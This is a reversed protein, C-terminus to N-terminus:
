LNKIDKIIQISDNFSNTEKLRMDLSEKDLSDPHQQLSPYKKESM